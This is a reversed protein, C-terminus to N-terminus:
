KTSYTHHSIKEDRINKLIREHDEKDEVFLITSNTTHKITFSGNVQASVDNIFNKLNATQKDIIISPM